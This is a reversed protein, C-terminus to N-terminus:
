NIFILSLDLFDMMFNTLLYGLSFSLVLVLLKTEIVRNKKMIVQWNVGNFIYIAFLTFFTYLYIEVRM